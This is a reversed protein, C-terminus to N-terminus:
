RNPSKAFYNKINSNPNKISRGSLFFYSYGARSLREPPRTMRTGNFFVQKEDFNNRVKRLPFCTIYILAM